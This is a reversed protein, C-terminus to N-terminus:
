IFTLCSKFNRKHKSKYDVELIALDTISDLARWGKVEFSDLGLYGKMGPIGKVVHYCTVILNERIFFGSASGKGERLEVV